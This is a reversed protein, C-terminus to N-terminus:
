ARDSESSDAQASSYPHSLLICEASLPGNPRAFGEISRVARLAGEYWIRSLKATCDTDLASM